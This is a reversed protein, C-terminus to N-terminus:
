EDDGSAVQGIRHGCAGYRCRGHVTSPEIPKSCHPCLGAAMRACVQDILARTEKEREAHEEQTMLVRRSCPVPDLRPLSPSGDLCPIRRAWGFDPGGVLERYNIGAECCKAREGAGFGLGNFFRCEDRFPRESM